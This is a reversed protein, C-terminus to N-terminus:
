IRFYKRLIFGRNSNAFDAKGAANVRCTRDGVHVSYTRRTVIAGHRRGGGGLVRTRRAREIVGGPSAVQGVTDGTSRAPIAGDGPERMGGSVAIWTIM